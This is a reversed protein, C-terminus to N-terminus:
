DKRSQLGVLWFMLDHSFIQTSLVHVKYQHLSVLILVSQEPEYFLNPLYLREQKSQQMGFWVDGVSM